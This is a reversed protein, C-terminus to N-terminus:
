RRDRLLQQLPSRVPPRERQARLRPAYQSGSINMSSDNVNRKIHPAQPIQTKQRLSNEIGPGINQSVGEASERATQGAQPPMRHRDAHASRSCNESQSSSQDCSKIKAMQRNGLLRNLARQSAQEYERAVIQEKASRDRSDIVRSMNAPQHRSQRHPRNQSFMKRAPPSGRHIAAPLKQQPRSRETKSKCPVSAHLHRLAATTALLM